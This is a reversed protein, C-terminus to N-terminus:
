MYRRQVLNAFKEITDASRQGDWQFEFTLRNLFEFAEHISPFDNIKEISENYAKLDGNFLENIFLFKENIGIAEKINKVPKYQMRAGISKDDKIQALREHISSKESSYKEGVLPKSTEVPEPEVKVLPEEKVERPKEEVKKEVPKAAEPESVKEQPKVQSQEPADTREEKPDRIIVPAEALNENESFKRLLNLERYLMRIDEMALDIELLNRSGSQREILETRKIINELLNVINEKTETLKM